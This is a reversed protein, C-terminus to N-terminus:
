LAISCINFKNIFKFCNNSNNINILIKIQKHWDSDIHKIIINHNDNSYIIIIININFSVNKM